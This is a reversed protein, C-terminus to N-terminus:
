RYTSFGGTYVFVGVALGLLNLVIILWFAIQYSTKSRKHHFYTQALLAGPWGGLLEYMHLTNEPTRRAGNGARAKDSGYALFAILSMLGYIALAWFPLWGLWILVGLVFFFGFVLILAGVLPTLSESELYVQSARPRGREDKTLQYFVVTQAAPRRRRSALSSIHFFVEPGGRDPVIFGFGREDNWTKIKGRQQEAM